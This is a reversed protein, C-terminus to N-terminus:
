QSNKKSIAVQAPRIVKGNIVFGTQYQEVVIQDDDGPVEKIAEHFNPDFRKGVAEIKEIGAQTIATDIQKAIGELGAKWNKYQEDELDPAYAIAQQLSDLVPLIQVFAAQKGFSIWEASESEIRKRFNELDAQTRKWGSLNEEAKSLADSLESQLDEITIRGDTSESIQHDNIHPESIQPDNSM